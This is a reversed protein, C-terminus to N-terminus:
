RSGELSIPVVNFSSSYLKVSLLHHMTEQASFDREGLTRIMIKKIVKGTRNATNQHNLSSIVQKLVPPKSEGKAAYKTMYEVCAHHDIILQIDCNARWDQLQLRQHNNVRSDNTKTVIKARYCDSKNKQIYM